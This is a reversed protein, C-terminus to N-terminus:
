QEIYVLKEVRQINHGVMMQAILLAKSDRVYFYLGSMYGKHQNEQLTAAGMKCLNPNTQAWKALEPSGRHKGLTIKYEYKPPNQVIIVNDTNLLLEIHEPNPEYFEKYGAKTKNILQQMFSRDNSYLHLMNSEVRIKYDDNNYLIRYIEIADYYDAVDIYDVFRNHPGWRHEIQDLHPLWKTHLEDIKKRVYGLKGPKQFETRFFSSLQNHISLRYLFKRYHLKKTEYLKM